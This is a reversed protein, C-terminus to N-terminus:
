PQLAPNKNIESQPIPYFLDQTTIGPKTLSLETVANGWRKLDLWRHGWETFLEVRREQMIANMLSTEDDATTPLLGARTRIADIDDQAGAIKNQRARAEARILFQEALRMVMSYETFAAGNSSIKYKYPLDMTMQDEYHLLWSTSRNDGPEFASVMADTLVNLSQAVAPSFYVGEQTFDQGPIASRLQFIAETSNAIFVGDLDTLSYLATNDIVASAQTEANAWQSTYLYVRALLATAAFKNPRTREQPGFASPQVYAEPILTQAKLLDTIINQYIVPSATKPILKNINYDTTDVWPVDGFLNVLYFHTFARMFYAEGMLRDKLNSSVGNSASLGEIIVNANYITKYMSNWLDLLRPNDALLNNLEFQKAPADGDVAQKLEDASLGAYALVSTNSGDAFSAYSFLGAYLGNIAATANADNTFVLEAPTSTIPTDVELFKKCSSFMVLMAIVLTPLYYLFSHARYKNNIKMSNIKQM